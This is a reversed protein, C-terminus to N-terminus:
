TRLVTRVYQEEKDAKTKGLGSFAVLLFLLASCQIDMVPEDVLGHVLTVTIAGVSVACVPNMRLRHILEVLLLVICAILFITGVVGFNCLSELFLNHAHFDPIGKTELRSYTMMGQGFVPHTKFIDLATKWIYVRMHIEAMFSRYRPLIVDTFLLLCLCAGAGIIIGVLLHHYRHLCLFIVLVGCFVAPWASRCGSEWIGALAAALSAFYFPKRGYHLIAYTILVVSLECIFAYYDPDGFVSTPRYADEERILEQILAVALVVFNGLCVVTIINKKLRGRMTISEYYAFIVLAFYGATVATGYLNKAVIAVAMAYAFFIYVPYMKRTELYRSKLDKRNWIACIFAAAMPVFCLYFPLFISGACILLMKDESRFTDLIQSTVSVPNKIVM